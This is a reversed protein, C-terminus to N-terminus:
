VQSTAIGQDEADLDMETAAATEVEMGSGVLTEEDESTPATQYEDETKEFNFEDFDLPSEEEITDDYSVMNLNRNIPTPIPIYPIISCVPLVTPSLFLCSLCSPCGVLDATYIGWDSL